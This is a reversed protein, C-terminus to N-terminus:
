HYYFKDDQNHQLFSLPYLLHFHQFPFLIYIHFVLAESSIHNSVDVGPSLFYVCATYAQACVSVDARLLAHTCM